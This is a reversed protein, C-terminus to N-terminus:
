KNLMNTIQKAEFRAIAVGILYLVLYVIVFVPLIEAFVTYVSDIYGCLACATMGVTFCGVCHIITSILFNFKGIFLVSSILSLLASAFIWIIIEKLTDNYGGMVSKCIVTVPIGVGVGFIAVGFLRLIKDIVGKM